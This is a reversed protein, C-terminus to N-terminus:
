STLVTEMAEALVKAGESAHYPSLAELNPSWPTAAEFLLELAQKLQVELAAPDGPDFTALHVDAACNRLISVAESEQHLAAVVPKGSLLCQFVKSASYHAEPSGIVFSAKAGRLLQQVELFPIREASEFILEGVGHRRAIASIPRDPRGTGIFAM